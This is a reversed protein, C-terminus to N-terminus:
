NWTRTNVFVQTVIWVLDHECRIVLGLAVTEGLSLDNEWLNSGRLLGLQTPKCGSWKGAQGSIM